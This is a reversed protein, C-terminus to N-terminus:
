LGMINLTRSEDDLWIPKHQVDMVRKRETILISSISSLKSNLAMHHLKIVVAQKLTFMEFEESRSM